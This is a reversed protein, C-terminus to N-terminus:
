YHLNLTRIHSKAVIPERDNKTLQQSQSTKLKHQEQFLCIATLSALDIVTIFELKILVRVMIATIISIGKERPLCNKKHTILVNRFACLVNSCTNRPRDM